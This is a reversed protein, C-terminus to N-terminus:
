ILRFGKKTHEKIYFLVAVTEHACSTLHQTQKETAKTKSENKQQQLTINKHYLNGQDIYINWFYAFCDMIM